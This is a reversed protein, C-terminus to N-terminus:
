DAEMIEGTNSHGGSSLSSAIAGAKTFVNRWCGCNGAFMVYVYM